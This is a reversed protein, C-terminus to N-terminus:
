QGSGCSVVAALVGLAIRQPREGLGFCTAPDGRPDIEVIKTGAEVHVGHHTLGRICGALPSTVFREALVAVVEGQKVRQGIAHATRFEGARPAYVNRERGAGDIPRPEGELQKTPGHTIVHGLTDGWATEIAVDVNEGAVFNPGLGITICDVLRENDPVSRKRMRADIVVAPRVSEMVECVDGTFIPVARRCSAMPLLDKVDRAKKGIVKDLQASGCFLADVFSMGRRLHAPAPNDHVFVEHGNAFLIHAVASGVDGAGRILCTAM